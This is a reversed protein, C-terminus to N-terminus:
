DSFLHIIPIIYSFWDDAAIGIMWRNELQGKEIWMQTDYNTLNKNRERELTNSQQNDTLFSLNDM